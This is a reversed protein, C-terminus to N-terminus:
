GMHCSWTRRKVRKRLGCRMDKIPRLETQMILMIAANVSGWANRQMNYYGQNTM